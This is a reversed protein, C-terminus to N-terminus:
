FWRRATEKYRLYEEGFKRELYKEERRIQGRDIAILVAVLLVLAWVLNFTFAIGLCILTFSLYIPNRTHRYVGDKVVSTTPLSPDLPTESRILARFASVIILIGVVVFLPGITWALVGPLFTIAFFFNLIVGLIVAGVCLIPPPVVTGAADRGGDASM